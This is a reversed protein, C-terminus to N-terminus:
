PTSLNEVYTPKQSGSVPIERFGRPLNASPPTHDELGYAVHLTAVAFPQGCFVGAARQGSPEPPRCFNQSWCM